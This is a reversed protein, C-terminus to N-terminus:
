LRMPDAEREEEEIAQRALAAFNLSIGALALDEVLRAAALALMLEPWLAKRRLLGIQASLSYAAPELLKTQRLGLAIFRVRAACPFDPLPIRRLTKLRTCGVKVGYAHIGVDGEAEWLHAAGLDFNAHVPNFLVALLPDTYAHIWAATCLEGGGPATHEAGEGWQCGGHTRDYRNTIKYLKM